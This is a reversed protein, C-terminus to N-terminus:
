LVRNFSLISITVQKKNKLKYNNYSIMNTEFIFCHNSLQIDGQLSIVSNNVLNGKVTKMLRMEGGVVM